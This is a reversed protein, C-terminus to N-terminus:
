SMTDYTQGYRVCLSPNSGEHQQWCVSKSCNPLHGTDYRFYASKRPNKLSFQPIPAPCHLIFEIFLCLCVRDWDINPMTM